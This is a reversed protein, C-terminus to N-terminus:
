SRRQPPDAIPRREVVIEENVVPIRVEEGPRVEDIARRLEDRPVAGQIRSVRVTREDVPAAGREGPHWWQDWFGYWHRQRASCLEGVWAGSIDDVVLHKGDPRARDVPVLVRPDDDRLDFLKTDLEVDLYPASMRETDVILDKVEGVRRGDRGVVDWGRPDLEHRDVAYGDMRSLRELRAGSVTHESRM